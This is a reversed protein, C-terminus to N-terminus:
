GVVATQWKFDTIKRGQLLQVLHRPGAFHPQQMIDLAVLVIEGSTFFRKLATIARSAMRNDIVVSYNVFILTFTEQSTQIFTVQYSQKQGAQEM